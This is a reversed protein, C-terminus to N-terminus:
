SNGPVTEYHIFDMAELILFGLQVLGATHNGGLAPVAESACDHLVVVTLQVTHEM